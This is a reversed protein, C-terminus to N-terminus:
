GAGALQRLIRARAASLASLDLATFVITTALQPDRIAHDSVWGGLSLYFRLLPPLGAPDAPVTGALPIATGRPSPRLSPPGLAAAALHALAAAHRAPEAGALSSCGFLHRAGAGGVIRALGAWVLRLVEAEQAAPHLCLRGVEAKAGAQAAFAALDYFRASYADRLAAGEDFLRVRLTARAAGEPTEVILHTSAADHPDADIGPAGHFALHRLAQAARLDEADRVLRLRYNASQVERM